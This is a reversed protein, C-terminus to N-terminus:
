RQLITVQQMEREPVSSNGQLITTESVEECRGLIRDQFERLKKSFTVRDILGCDFVIMLNVIQETIM